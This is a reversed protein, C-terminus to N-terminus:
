QELSEPLAFTQCAASSPERGSCSESLVLVFMCKKLGISDGSPDRTDHSVINGGCCPSFSGVQLMESAFSPLPCCSKWDSSTRPNTPQAGDPSSRIMLDIGPALLAVLKGAFTM